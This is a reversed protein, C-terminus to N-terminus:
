KKLHCATCNQNAPKEIGMRVHCTMCQQHYAAKLGPRGANKLDFPKGHCSGCPPPTASAPSNHHCGQCLTEPSQHFYLALNDEMSGKALTQVIKRHPLRVPHYEEVIARIEVTEPVKRYDAPMRNSRNFDLVQSALQPQETMAQFHEVTPASHCFRCRGEDASFEAMISAHCGACAPEQQQKQRHCGVCSHTSSKEHMAQALTINNGESRGNEAHCDACRNLSAHHCVICSDVSKEHRIHDFPVAPMKDLVEPTVEEKIATRKVWVVDPQNRDLRPIDTLKAIAAQGEQSHCGVCNVPGAAKEQAIFERHCGLCGEHSAQRMSIRNEETQEKHCYRCSGEKGKIYVKKQAEKDYQHHCVECKKELTRTHRFHLSKDMGMPLQSMQPLGEKPHCGGCTVPGSAFGSKLTDEHCAICNNHYLDMIATKDDNELRKFEFSAGKEKKPHCTECNKDQKALAATHTDHPFAVPPRELEGYAKLRDIVLLDAQQPQDAEIPVQVSYGALRLGLIGAMATFAIFLYKIRSSRSKKMPLGKSNFEISNGQFM